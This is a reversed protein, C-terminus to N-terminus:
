DMRIVVTGGKETLFSIRDPADQTVDVAEGSGTRVSQAAIGPYRVRCLKGSRSLIVLQQLRGDKWDASVEFNGRAVLGDFSGTHWAQPLAPLPEIAGAHSQLLMELVAAMVGFNGDIQFPPHMSWLNEATKHFVFKRYLDLAEEGEKLRARCIMRHAMAWGTSVDGRLDLTTSAAEM